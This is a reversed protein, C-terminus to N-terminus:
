PPRGVNTWRKDQELVNVPLSCPLRDLESPAEHVKLNAIFQDTLFLLPADWYAALVYHDILVERLVLVGYFKLILHKRLTHSIARLRTCAEPPCVGVPFSCVTYAM